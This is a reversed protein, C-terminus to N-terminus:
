DRKLLGYKEFYDFYNSKRAKIEAAGKKTIRIGRLFGYQDEFTIHRIAGGMRSALDQIMAGSRLMRDPLSDKPDTGMPFHIASIIEGKDKDLVRMANNWAIRESRETGDLMDHMFHILDFVGSAPINKRRLGRVIGKVENVGHLGNAHNEILIPTKRTKPFINPINTWRTEPVHVLLPIHAFDRLLHKTTVLQPLILALKTKNWLTDEKIIGTRGHIVATQFGEAAADGIFRLLRKEGRWAVVEIHKIPRDPMIAKLTEVNHFRGAADDSMAYIIEKAM